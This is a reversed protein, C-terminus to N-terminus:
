QIFWTVHMLENSWALKFALYRATKRRKEKVQSLRCALIRRRTASVLNLRYANKIWNGVFEVWRSVARLESAPRLPNQLQVLPGQGGVGDFWWYVRDIKKNKKLGKEERVFLMLPLVYLLIGM